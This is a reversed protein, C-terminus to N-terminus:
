HVVKGTEKERIFAARGHTQWDRCAERAEGITTCDERFTANEHEFGNWEAGWIEYKPNQYDATM